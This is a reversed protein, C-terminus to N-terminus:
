LTITAILIILMHLSSLVTDLLLAIHTGAILVIPITITCVRSYLLATQWLEVKGVEVVKM